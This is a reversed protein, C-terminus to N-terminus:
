SDTLFSSVAQDLGPLRVTVKFGVSNFGNISIEGATNNQILELIPQIMEIPLGAMKIFSFVEKLSMVAMPNANQATNKLNEIMDDTCQLELVGDMKKFLLLIIAFPFVNIIPDLQDKKESLVKLINERTKLHMISQIHISMSKLFHTFLPNDDLMDTFTTGLNISGDVTIDQSGDGFVGSEVTFGKALQAYENDAAKFGIMAEGDAAQFKLEGFQELMDMPLGFAEILGQVQDIFEQPDGKTRFSIYVFMDDDSKDPFLVSGQEKLKDLTPGALLLQGKAGIGAEEDIENMKIQLNSQITDGFNTEKVQNLANMIEMGISFLDGEM